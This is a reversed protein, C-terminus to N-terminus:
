IKSFDEKPMWNETISKISEDIIKSVVDDKAKDEDSLDRLEDIKLCNVIYIKPSTKVSTERSKEYIIISVFKKQRDLIM